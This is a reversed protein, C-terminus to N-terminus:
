CGCPRGGRGLRGAAGAPPWRGPGAAAAALPSRGWAGAPVLRVRVRVGLGLRFPLCLTVIAKYTATLIHSLM